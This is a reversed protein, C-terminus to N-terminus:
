GASSAGAAAPEGEGFSALVLSLLRDRFQPYAFHRLLRERGRAGMEARLGEHQLLRVVRDALATRDAQDVLFGTAGDDIVEGSADHVSGICPLRRAMAELYVLGFGEDRSPMAFVAAREYLAALVADTVFGTAIVSPEHGLAAAKARVRSVDDGTGALLLQADPVRAVIMSWAELLQDHGKYREGAMMRGVVLVVHRGLPWPLDGPAEANPARGSMALPCVHIPGIWPHAATVRRATYRSNAMLLTADELVRRQTPSLPRWAEIGHLFVAYPKELGRPVFSQVKTLSLHTYLTWRCQGLAQERALRAGFQVRAVTTTELTPPDVDDEVLQVLRCEGGWQEQFVQWMLRSVAAIGGGKPHLTITALTPWSV